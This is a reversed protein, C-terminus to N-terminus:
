GTNGTPLDKPRGSISLSSLSRSILQTAEIKVGLEMPFRFAFSVSGTCWQDAVDTFKCIMYIYTYM